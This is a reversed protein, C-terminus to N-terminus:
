KLDIVVNDLHLDEAPAPANAFLGITVRLAGNTFSPDLAGADVVATSDITVSLTAPPGVVVDVTVRHWSGTPVGAGLDFSKVQQVAAGADGLPAYQYVGSSLALVLEDLTGNPHAFDLEAIARSGGAPILV